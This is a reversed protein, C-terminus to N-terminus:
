SCIVATIAATEARTRGDKTFVQVVPILMLLRNILLITYM